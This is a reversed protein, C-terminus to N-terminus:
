KYQKNWEKEADNLATMLNCFLLASLCGETNPNVIEIKGDDSVLIQVSLTVKKM